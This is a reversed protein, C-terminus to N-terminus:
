EMALLWPAKSNMGKALVIAITSTLISTWGIVVPKMVSVGLLPFPKLFSPIVALVKLAQVERFVPVVKHVLFLNFLLVIV